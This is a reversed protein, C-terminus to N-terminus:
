QYTSLNVLKALNRNHLNLMVEELPLALSGDFFEEVFGAFDNWGSPRDILSSWSNMIQEIQDIGEEYQLMCQRLKDLKYQNEYAEKDITAIDSNLSLSSYCLSGNLSSLQSLDQSYQAYQDAIRECYRCATALSSRSLGLKNNSGGTSGGFLGAFGLAALNMEEALPLISNQMLDRVATLNSIYVSFDTVWKQNNNEFVGASSGHWSTATLTQNSSSLENKLDEM